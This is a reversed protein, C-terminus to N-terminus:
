AANSDTFNKKKQSSYSTSSPRMKEGKLTNRRSRQKKETNKTTLRQLKELVRIFEIERANYAFNLNEGHKETDGHRQGLFLQTSVTSVKVRLAIKMNEPHSTLGM